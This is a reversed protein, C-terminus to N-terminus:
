LVLIVFSIGFINIFAFIWVMTKFSNKSRETENFLAICECMLVFVILLVKIFM